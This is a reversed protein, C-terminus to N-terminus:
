KLTGARNYEAIAVTLRSGIWMLTAVNLNLGMHLDLLTFTHMEFFRIIITRNGDGWNHGDAGLFRDSAIGTHDVLERERYTGLGLGGLNHDSTTRRWRAPGSPM